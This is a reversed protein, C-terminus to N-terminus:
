GFRRKRVSAKETIGRMSEGRSKAEQTEEIKGKVIM